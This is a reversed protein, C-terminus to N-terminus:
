VLKKENSETARRSRRELEDKFAPIIVSSWLNCMEPKVSPKSLKRVPTPPTPIVVSSETLPEAINAATPAIVTKEIEIVAFYGKSDIKHSSYVYGSQKSHFYVAIRSDTIARLIYGWPCADLPKTKYESDLTDIYNNKGIENYVYEKALVRMKDCLDEKNENAEHLKLRNEGFCSILCFFQNSM